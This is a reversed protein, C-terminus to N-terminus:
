LLILTFPCAMSRSLFSALKGRAQIHPVEPAGHIFGCSVDGEISRVYESCLDCM